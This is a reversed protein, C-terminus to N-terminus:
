MRGDAECRVMLKVDAIQVMTSGSEPIGVMSRLELDRSSLIMARMGLLM